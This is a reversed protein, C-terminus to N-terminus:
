IVLKLSNYIYTVVRNFSKKAKMEETQVKILSEVMDRSIGRRIVQQGLELTENIAKRTPGEPERRKAVARARVLSQQVRGSTSINGYIKQVGMM